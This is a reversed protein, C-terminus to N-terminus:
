GDEPSPNRLHRDIQDLEDSWFSRCREIFGAASQFGAPHLTCVVERGAREKRILGAEDLTRVHKWVAVGSLDFPRALQHISQPGAALGRLIARRTPDALAAFARDLSASSNVM